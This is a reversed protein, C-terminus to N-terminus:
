GCRSAALNAHHAEDVRLGDGHKLRREVTPFPHGRHCHVGRPRAGEAVPDPNGEEVDVDRLRNEVAQVGLGTGGLKAPLDRRM